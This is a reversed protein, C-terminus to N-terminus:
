AARGQAPEKEQWDFVARNRGTAKARYLCADARRISDELEELREKLSGGLSVTVQLPGMETQTSVDEIGKRIREAIAAGEKPTAHELFILFEEGGYRCVIDNERVHTKMQGAVMSIVEDGVIHGYRDNVSKFHDIDVMLSVGYADQDRQLREFFYDRTAVDTLRDRNVLRTLEDGLSQIRRIMVAILWSIPLAIASVIFAKKGPATSFFEDRYFIYELASAMAIGFLTIAACFALMAPYSTLRPM